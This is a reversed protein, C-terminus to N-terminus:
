LVSIHMLMWQHTYAGRERRYVCWMREHKEGERGHGQRLNGRARFGDIILDNEVLWQVM